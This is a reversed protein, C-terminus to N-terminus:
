STEGNLNRSDTPETPPPSTVAHIPSGGSGSRLVISPVYRPAGSGLGSGPGDEWEYLHVTLTNLSRGLLLAIPYPCRLLLHIETTAHKNALERITTNIEGVVKTADAPKVLDASRARLHAVGAFGENTLFAAVAADSRQPLLDVYILVRGSRPAFGPPGVSEIIDEAPAAPAQGVLRWEDGKPDVVAVVGVLTTPLAAGIACAVSLHAGGQVRVQTAGAIAVLQPLQRLFHRLGELGRPDPRREGEAPPRLRLVLHADPQSAFPPVRTQVDFILVGDGQALAPKVHEMRRRCLRAALRAREDATSVPQQDLRSLTGPPQGLLRDPAKYSLRQPDKKKTVTSGIALTFSPDTELELLRPLEVDRIVDSQAIEPTVLLIAGSLGSDLAEALRRRTDGPPHDTQDHWVPVGAARLAWAVEVAYGAGDSQRYSIFVPGLPKVGQTQDDSM